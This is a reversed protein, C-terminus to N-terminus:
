SAPLLVEGQPALRECAHTVADCALLPGDGGNVNDVLVLVLHGYSWSIFHYENRGPLVWMQGNRTDVLASGHSASRGPNWPALLFSGDASLRGFDELEPLAVEPRHDRKLSPVPGGPGSVARELSGWYQTADHVDVPLPGSLSEPTPTGTWVDASAGSALDIRHVAFDSRWVVEHTSVHLFGNGGLVHERGAFDRVADLGAFQAIERGELTDYVVLAGQPDFWAAFGSNPDGAPGTPSRGIVRPAANWAHYWVDQREQDLYVAGGRVLALVGWGDSNVLTAPTRLVVDGHHLGASDYWVPGVGLTPPRPAPAPKDTGRSVLVFGLVAAALVAVALAGATARRRHTRVKSRVADLDVDPAPVRDALEHAARSLREDLTM